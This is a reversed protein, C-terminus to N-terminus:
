TPNRRLPVDVIRQEAARSPSRFESLPPHVLPTPRDTVKREPRAGAGPQRLGELRDQLRINEKGPGLGRDRQVSEAPGPGATRGRKINFEVNARGLPRKPVTFKVTHKPM